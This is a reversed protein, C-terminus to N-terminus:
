CGTTARVLLYGVGRAVLVGVLFSCAAVLVKDLKTLRIM